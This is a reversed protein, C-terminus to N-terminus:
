SGEMAVVDVAFIAENAEIESVLAASPASDVQIHACAAHAGDFVINQMEQVNIEGTRLTTLVRALVGVKDKHRVVLL